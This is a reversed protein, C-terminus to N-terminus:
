FKEARETFFHAQRDLRGIWRLAGPFYKDPWKSFCTGDISDVGIEHFHRIRRFSNVRGVHVWKARAKAEEVLSDVQSSLKFVTSGGIFLADIRGWPVADNTLGDQAVLAVPFGSTRVIPEWAEFRELTTGCDGVADPMTVFKCTAKNGDLCMRGLMRSFARERVMDWGQFCDNDAAWIKDSISRLSNGTRPTILRGFTPHNWYRRHTGTAGSVLVIM